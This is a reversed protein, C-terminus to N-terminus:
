GRVQGWLRAAARLLSWMMGDRLGEVSHATLLESLLRDRNGRGLALCDGLRLALEPRTDRRQGTTVLLILMLDEVGFRLAALVEVVFVPSAEASGEEVARIESERIGVADAITRREEGRSQRLLALARGIRHSLALREEEVSM